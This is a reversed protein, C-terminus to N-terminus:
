RWTSTIRLMMGDNSGADCVAILTGKNTTILSPIRYFASGETGSIFVDCKEIVGKKKHCSACVVILIGAVIIIKRM